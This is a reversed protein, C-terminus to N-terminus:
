YKSGVNIILIRGGESTRTPLFEFVENDYVHRISQPTINIGYKPYKVKFNYFKRLIKLAREPYFRCPRLFKLLFQDDDIPLNM